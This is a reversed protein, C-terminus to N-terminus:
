EPAASLATHSRWRGAALTTTSSRTGTWTASRIRRSSGNLEMGLVRDEPQLYDVTAAPVFAPRDLAPIGDRPPGGLQIEQAPLLSGTLDFGNKRQAKAFGAGPLGWTFLLLILLASAVRGARRAHKVNM